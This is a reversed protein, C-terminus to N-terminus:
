RSGTTCSGAPRYATPNPSPACHARCSRVLPEDGSARASCTPSSRRRRRGVGEVASVVADAVGEHGLLAREIEGPEVRYGRVQVQGDLRRVYHLLGDVEVVVDGTRYVREGDPRVPFREDTLEPRGLYGPTVVAGGLLLEGPRGAPVPRLDEDVVDVRVGPLPRGIVTSGDGLPDAVPGIPWWTSVVTAETVGYMNVLQAAPAARSSRWRELDAQKIPEGGFVVYRLRPLAGPGHRTLLHGFVTPVQSVVTVATAHLLRAFGDPDVTTAAPVIVVAGGFWLPGWTEWVSFDFSCSHFQSWRDAPSLDFVEATARLLAVVNAATVTVGKPTGTSGSTYIVYLTDPPPEAPATAPQLAEVLLTNGDPDTRVLATVGADTRLFDRRVTPYAPDIPVYGRGTLAVALVATM